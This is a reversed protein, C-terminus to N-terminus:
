NHINGFFRHRRIRYTNAWLSAREFDEQTNKPENLEPPIRSLNFGDLIFAFDFIIKLHEYDRHPPTYIFIFAQPLGNPMPDITIIGYHEIGFKRLHYRGYRLSTCLRDSVEDPTSTEDLRPQINFATLQHGAKIAKSKMKTMHEMVQKSLEINM